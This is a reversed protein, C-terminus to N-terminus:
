IRNSLKSEVSSNEDPLSHNKTRSHNKICLNLSLYLESKKLSTNPPHQAKPEQIIVEKNM